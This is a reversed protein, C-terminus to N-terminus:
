KLATYFIEAVRVNYNIKLSEEIANLLTSNGKLVELFVAGQFVLLWKIEFLSYDFENPKLIWKFLNSRLSEHLKSVIPLDFLRYSYIQHITIYLHNWPQFNGGVPHGDDSIGYEPLNNAQQLVHNAFEEFTKPDDKPNWMQWHYATDILDWKMSKGEDLYSKFLKSFKEQQAPKLLSYFPIIQNFTVTWQKKEDIRTSLKVYFDDDYIHKLKRVTILANCFPAILSGSWINNSLIYFGIKEININDISQIYHKIFVSFYKHSISTDFIESVSLFNIIKGILQNAVSDQLEVHTLLLVFNNFTRNVRHRFYTSSDTLAHYPDNRSIREGLLTTREFGSELFQEFVKVIESLGDEEFKLENIDYEKLLKELDDAYGYQAFTYAFFPQFAKLRQAYRHSTTYSALM